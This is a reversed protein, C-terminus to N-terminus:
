RVLVWTKGDWKRTEGDATRVEGLAPGSQSGVNAQGAPTVVPAQAAFLGALNANMPPAGVPPGYVPTGDPKYGIIQREQPM